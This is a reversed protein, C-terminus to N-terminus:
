TTIPKNPISDLCFKLKEHIEELKEEFEEYESNTKDMFKPM